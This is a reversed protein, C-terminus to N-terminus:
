GPLWDLKVANGTMTQSNMYLKNMWESYLDFFTELNEKQYLALSNNSIILLGGLLFFMM